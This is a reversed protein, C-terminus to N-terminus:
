CAAPKSSTPLRVQFRAVPETGPPRHYPRQAKLEREARMIREVEGQSYLLRTSISEPWGFPSEEWERLTVVRPSRFRHRVWRRAQEAADPAELDVIPPDSLTYFSLGEPKRRGAQIEVGAAHADELAEVAGLGDPRMVPQKRLWDRYDKARRWLAKPANGPKYGLAQAIQSRSYGERMWIAAPRAMLGTSSPKARVRPWEPLHTQWFTLHEGSSWEDQWMLAWRFMPYRKDGLTLQQWVLYDLSGTILALDPPGTLRVHPLVRTPRGRPPRRAIMLLSPTWARM